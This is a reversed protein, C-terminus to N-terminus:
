QQNLAINMLLLWTTYYSPAVFYTLLRKQVKAACNWTM